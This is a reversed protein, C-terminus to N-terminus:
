RRRRLPIRYDISGYYSLKPGFFGGDRLKQCLRQDIIVEGGNPRERVWLLGGCVQDLTDEETVPGFPWGALPHSIHQVGGVAHTPAVTSCGVLALASALAALKFSNKM